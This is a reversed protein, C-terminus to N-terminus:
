PRRQRWSEAEADFVDRLEPGSIQGNRAMYAIAAMGVGWTTAGAISAGLASAAITAIQGGPVYGAVKAAEIAWKVFGRGAAALVEGLIFVAVDRDVPHRHVAAIDLILKVQIATVAAADVGPLPVAGAAAAQKAARAVVGRCAAAKDRLQRAVLLGKGQDALRDHLWAAVRDIGVPADALAPHPDFAVVAADDPSVDLQRLTAAVFDDRENPRILDIKNVAVLIPRGLRRLAILDSREDATAGGDANLVYVFADVRDLIARASADVEKRVDGFGPTNVVLVQGNIDLAAVRVRDTSGPVPDIQGFDLGFLARIGSDKGSSASGVFAIAVTQELAAAVDRSALEWGPAVAVAM